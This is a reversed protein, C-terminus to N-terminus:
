VITTFRIFQSRCGTNIKTNIGNKAYFNISDSNHSYFTTMLNYKITESCLIITNIIVMSDVIVDVFILNM